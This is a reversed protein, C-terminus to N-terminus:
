INKACALAILVVAAYMFMQYTGGGFYKLSSALCENAAPDKPCIIKALLGIASVEAADGRCVRNACAYHVTPILSSLLFLVMVVPMKKLAKYKFVLVLYVGVFYLADSVHDLIEGIKSTLKYKRAMVGDLDDMWYALASFFVFLILNGAWLLYIAIFSFIISLVTVGNPTFGLKERLLTVVGGSSEIIWKDIPNEYADMCRPPTSTLDM